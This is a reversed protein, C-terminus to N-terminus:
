KTIIYVWVSVFIDNMWEFISLSKAFHSSLPHDILILQVFSANFRTSLTLIGQIPRFIFYGIKQLASRYVHILNETEADNNHELVRFVRLFPTGIINVRM